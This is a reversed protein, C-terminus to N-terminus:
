AESIKPPRPDAAPTLGNLQRAPLPRFKIFVATRESLPPFPETLIIVPVSCCPMAAEDHVPVDHAPGHSMVMPPMGAQAMHDCAAHRMVAAHAPALSAFILWIFALWLRLRNM